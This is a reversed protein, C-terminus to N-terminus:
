KKKKIITSMPNGFSRSRNDQILSTSLFHVGFLEKELRDYILLVKKYYNVTLIGANAM